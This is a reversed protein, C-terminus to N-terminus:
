RISRSRGAPQSPWLELNGAKAGPKGVFPNDAPVSGDPKIRVIKGLHNGLNQAEDRTFSHEGLSLFLNDDPMQVIRCGYHLGRSLPGDQHFIRQVNELRPQAGDVFKARALATRGGSEVPESYCFYITANQAFGRDLIVDLLGGQGRALVDPVGALPPSLKGERTAIRLRGPRETVLMRGDPLFALSWPHALGSVVTEVAINGSSTAFVQPAAAAAQLAATLALICVSACVLISRKM